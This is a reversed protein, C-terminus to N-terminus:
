VKKAGPTLTSSPSELSSSWHCRCGVYRLDIAVRARYRQDVNELDIGVLKIQEKGFPTFASLEHSLLGAKAGQFQM